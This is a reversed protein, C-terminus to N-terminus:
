ALYLFMASVGLSAHRLAFQAIGIVVSFFFLDTYLLLVVGLSANCNVIASGIVVSDLLCVTHSNFVVGLSAHRNVM